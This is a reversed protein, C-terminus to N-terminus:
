KTANYHDVLEPCYILCIKLKQQHWVMTSSINAADHKFETLFTRRQKSM